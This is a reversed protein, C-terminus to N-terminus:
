SRFLRLHKSALWGAKRRPPASPNLRTDAMTIKFDDGGERGGEGGWGKGKGGRQLKSVSTYSWGPNRGAM